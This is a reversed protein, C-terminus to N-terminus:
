QRGPKPDPPPPEPLLPRFPDIPQDPIPLKSWDPLDGPLLPPLLLRLSNAAILAIGSEALSEGENPGVMTTQRLLAWFREEPMLMPDTPPRGQLVDSYYRRQLRVDRSQATVRTVGYVGVYTCSGPTTRPCTVLFSTTTPIGSGGSSSQVIVSRTPDKGVLVRLTGTRVIWVDSGASPQSIEIQLEPAMLFIHGNNLELSAQSDPQTRLTGQVHIDVLRLLKKWGGLQTKRYQADNRVRIAFGVQDGQQAFLFGGAFVSSIVLIHFRECRRM